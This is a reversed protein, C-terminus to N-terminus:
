DDLSWYSIVKYDHKKEKKKLYSQQHYDPKVVYSVHIEDLAM